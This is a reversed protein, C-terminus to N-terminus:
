HRPSKKVQLIAQVLAETVESGYQEETKKRREQDGEKM